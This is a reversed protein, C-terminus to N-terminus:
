TRQLRVAGRRESIPAGYKSLFGLAVHPIIPARDAKDFSLQMSGINSSKLGEGQPNATRDAKILERATEITANVVPVPVINGPVYYWPIVITPVAAIAPRDPDFCLLRPWQLVQQATARTGNFAILGDILRTAMVLASSKQSETAGTWASAYLHGDHYADGDANSAYSNAGAVVSGDEKILVLAM